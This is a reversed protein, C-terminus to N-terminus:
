AEHLLFDFWHHFSFFPWRCSLKREGKNETSCRVITQGCITRTKADFTNRISSFAMQKNPEHDGTINLVCRHWYYCQIIKMVFLEKDVRPRGLFDEEQFDGNM